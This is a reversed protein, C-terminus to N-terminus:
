DLDGVYLQLSTGVVVRRGDPSLRAVARYSGFVESLYASLRVRPEAGETVEVIELQSRESLFQAKGEPTWWARTASPWRTGVDALPRPAADGPRATFLATRSTAGSTFTTRQLILVEPVGLVWRVDSVVSQETGTATQVVGTLALLQPSTAGETFLEWRRLSTGNETTAVLLSAGDPSLAYPTRLGHPDAIDRGAAAVTRVTGTAVSRTVVSNGTVYAVTGGDRSVAVATHALDRALTDVQRVDDLSSRLLAIGTVESTNSPSLLFAYFAHPSGAPLHVYSYPYGNRGQISVVTSAGGALRFERLSIGATNALDAAVVADGDDEWGIVTGSEPAGTNFPPLRYAAFARLRSEGTASPDGCAVLLTAFLLPLFRSAVPSM